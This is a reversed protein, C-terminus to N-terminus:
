LDKQYRKEMEKQSEEKNTGLQENLMKGMTPFGPREIRFDSEWLKSRMFAKACHLFVEQITLKICAKPKNQMDAFMDLEALRTTIIRLTEDIGPIM